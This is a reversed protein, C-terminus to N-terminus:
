NIEKELKKICSNCFEIKFHKLTSLAKAIKRERTKKGARTRKKKLAFLRPPNSDDPIKTLKAEEQLQKRQKWEQLTLRQSGIRIPEPVTRHSRSPVIQLSPPIERSGAAAKLFDRLANRRLRDEEGEGLPKATFYPLSEPKM